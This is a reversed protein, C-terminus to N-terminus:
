QIKKLDRITQDSKLFFRYGEANKSSYSFYEGGDLLSLLAMITGGHVMCVVRSAQTPIQSVMKEWGKKCRAIFDTRSEGEPFPLTGNSDIWVQYADDNTLDQYTKGEFRGFDIEKWEEIEHIEKGPYLIAASQLCRKMPSCFLIDAEPYLGEQRRKQLETKGKESLSVDTRGLYAHAQNETTEGHRFLLIEIQNEAGSWM